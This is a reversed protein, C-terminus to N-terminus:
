CLVTLALPLSLGFITELATAGSYLVAPTTVTVYIVVTLVSMVTRAAPSYRYELYEPMTYIGARLFRPLVTFAVIGITGADEGTGRGRSKWLSVGLVLGYFAVFVLVDIAALSM